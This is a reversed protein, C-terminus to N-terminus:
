KRASTRRQRDLSFRGCPLSSHRPPPCLLHLVSRDAARALGAGVTCDQRGAVSASATPGSPKFALLRLLVMTLAAYEDPALGLEARGHLCLSYLLQTEDPPMLGALRATEGIEPDSEDDAVSLEPVAQLVAMRQLLTTMDELTSAASLGNLRLTESTEVVTRGDNRALADILRFVYSRDVSGLM